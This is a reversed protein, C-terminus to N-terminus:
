PATHKQVLSDNKRCVARAERTVIKWEDTLLDMARNSSVFSAYIIMELFTKCVSGILPSQARM